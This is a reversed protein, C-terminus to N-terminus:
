ILIVIDLSFFESIKILRSVLHIETKYEEGDFSIYKIQGPVRTIQPSKLKDKWYRMIDMADEEKNYNWISWSIKFENYISLIEKLFEEANEICCNETGDDAIKPWVGWEGIWLPTSLRKSEEILTIVTKELRKKNGDYKETMTIIPDYLHPSFCSPENM